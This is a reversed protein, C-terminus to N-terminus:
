RPKLWCGHPWHLAPVRKVPARCLWMFHKLLILRRARPSPTTDISQRHIETTHISGGGQIKLSYCLNLGAQLSASHQVRTKELQPGGASAWWQYTGRVSGAGVSPGPQM